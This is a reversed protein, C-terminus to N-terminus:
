EPDQVISLILHETGVYTHNYKKALEMSKELLRKTTPTEPLKGVSILDPGQSSLKEVEKRGVRIDFGYKKLVKAAVGGGEKLLGLLIHESGIYEHNLRMAESHAHKMANKARVTFREYAM